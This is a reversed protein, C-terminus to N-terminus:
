VPLNGFVRSASEAGTWDMTTAHSVSDTEVLLDNRSVNSVLIQLLQFGLCTGHIQTPTQPPPRPPPPPPCPPPPSTLNNPPNSVAAPPPLSCAPQSHNSLHCTVCPLALLLCLLHQLSMKAKQQRGPGRRWGKTGRQSAAARSNSSKTRREGGNEM